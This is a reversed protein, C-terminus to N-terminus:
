YNLNKLYNEIFRLDNENLNFWEGRLRKSDFHNHLFKEDKFTAKHYFLIQIEPEESQLTKERIIPNNSYGIKVYSNRLNKM